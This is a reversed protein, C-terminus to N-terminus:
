NTLTVDLYTLSGSFPPTGGVADVAATASIAASSSGDFFPFFDCGSADPRIGKNLRIGFDYTGSFTLDYDLQEDHPNLFVAGEKVALMVLGNPFTDWMVRTDPLATIRAGTLSAAQCPVGLVGLLVLISLALRRM